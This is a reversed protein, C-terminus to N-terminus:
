TGGHAVAPIHQYTGGHATLGHAPIHWWTSEFGHVSEMHLWTSCITHAPIHWWTSDFWTSTHAVMHQWVWTSIGHAICATLGWTSIEHATCLDQSIWTSSGHAALDMHQVHYCMALRQKGSSM